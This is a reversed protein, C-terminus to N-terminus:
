NESYVSEFSSVEQIYRRKNSVNMIHYVKDKTQVVVMVDDDGNDNDWKGTDVATVVVGTLIDKSYAITTCGYEQTQAMGMYMPMAIECNLLELWEDAGSPLDDIHIHNTKDIDIKQKM